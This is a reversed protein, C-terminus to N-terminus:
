KSHMAAMMRQTFVDLLKVMRENEEARLRAQELRDEAGERARDLREEAREEKRAAIDREKMEVMAMTLQALRVHKKPPSGDEDAASSQELREMEVRRAVLSAAEDRERKKQEQQKKCEQEQKADDILEVLEDLLQDRETVDESVGSLLEAEKMTERHTQVLQSMRSQANKGSLKSRSFAPSAVLTAALSDWHQMVKGRPKAFPRDLLVQRLLAVDDEESYNKCRPQATSRPPETAPESVMTMTAM